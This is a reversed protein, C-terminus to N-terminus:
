MTRENAAEEIKLAGLRAKQPLCTPLIVTLLSTLPFDKPFCAPQVNM